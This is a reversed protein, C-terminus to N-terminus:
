KNLYWIAGNLVTAFLVWCLYPILLYAATKNIKYFHAITLFILILMISIEMFAWGILHLNFFIYSWCLNFTFQVIFLLIAKQKYEHNSHWILAVSIGMLIYLTTWVPGFIWNPPNWTPKSIFQYWNEISDTTSFGSLIGLSLCIAICITIKVYLYKMYDNKRSALPM